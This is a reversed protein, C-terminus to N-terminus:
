PASFQEMPLAILWKLRFSGLIARTRKTGSRVNSSARRLTRKQPYLLCNAVVGIVIIETVTIPVVSLKTLDVM